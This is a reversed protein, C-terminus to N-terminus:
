SFIWKDIRIKGGFWFVKFRIGGGVVVAVVVVVVVDDVVVFRMKMTEVGKLCIVPIRMSSLNLM